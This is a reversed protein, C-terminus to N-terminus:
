GVFVYRELISLPSNELSINIKPVPAIFNGESGGVSQPRRSADPNCKYNISVM